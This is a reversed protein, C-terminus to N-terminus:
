DTLQLLDSSLRELDGKAFAQCFLIRATKGHWSAIKAFAAGSM